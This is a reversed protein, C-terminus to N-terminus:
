FCSEFGGKEQTEVVKMIDLGFLVYNSRVEHLSLIIYLFNRQKKSPKLPTTILKAWIKVGMCWTQIKAITLIYLDYLNNVFCIKRVM